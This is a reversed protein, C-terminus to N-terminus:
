WSTPGSVALGSACTCYMLVAACCPTLASTMEAFSGFAMQLAMLSAWDAPVLTMVKSESVLGSQRSRNMLWALASPMALLWISMMASCIPSFPSTAIREAVAFAVFWFAQISIMFFYAASVYGSM